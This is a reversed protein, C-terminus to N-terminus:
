GREEEKNVGERRATKRYWSLPIYQYRTSKWVYVVDRVKAVDDATHETSVDKSPIRTDRRKKSEGCRERGRKRCEFEERGIDSRVGKLGEKVGKSKIRLNLGEM